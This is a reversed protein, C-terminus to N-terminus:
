TATATFRLIENTLGTDTTNIACVPSTHSHQPLVVARVCRRETRCLSNRLLDFQQEFIPPDLETSVILLPTTTKLLGALSSRAGYTTIDDGFYVSLSEVAPLNGLDYLGSVLIAGALGDGDPGHFEPHSLFSAVHVAGASTGMLYVRAPNGGHSAINATVWRVAAAMDEPGAPWPFEPALRYTTNVGVFGNKVAWLMVNDYFPSGATRKDGGTFGGGHVFILVPRPGSPAEATFVDLRNREGPGYRLDREAKMGTYPEPQHLPAYLETTRPTEIIRGIEKLKDAIDAPVQRALSTEPTISPAIDM